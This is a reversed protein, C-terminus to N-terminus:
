DCREKFDRCAADYPDVFVKYKQCKGAIFRACDGCTNKGASRTFFDALYNPSFDHGRYYDDLFDDMGDFRSQADYKEVLEPKGLAEAIHWIQASSEVAEKCYNSRLFEIPDDYGLKGLVVSAVYGTRGHGGMCFLGVKKGSSLRELIKSVLDDLVDNPLTEYDKIPYYLIEGRFGLDWIDADLVYLPILTDVRISASAMALAEDESGCFLNEIVEVPGIHCSPGSIHAHKYRKEM